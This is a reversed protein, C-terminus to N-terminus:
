EINLEGSDDVFVHREGMGRAIDALADGHKYGRDWFGTGHGNRTLWLNHGIDSDTLGETFAGAQEKFSKVDAKAADVVDTPFDSIVFDRNCSVIDEDDASSWLACELYAQTVADMGDKTFLGPTLEMGDTDEEPRFLGSEMADTACANCFLTGGTDDMGVRRLRVAGPNFCEAKGKHAPCGADRCGCWEM